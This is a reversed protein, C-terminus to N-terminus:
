ANDEKFLGRPKARIIQVLMDFPAGADNLDALSTYNRDLESENLVSTVDDQLEKPLGSRLFTGEDDTLGLLERVDPPLVKLSEGSASYFKRFTAGEWKGRVDDRLVDCAVGLCCFGSSTHLYGDTQEYKGSELAEIWRDRAMNSKESM